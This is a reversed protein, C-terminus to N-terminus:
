GTGGLRITLELATRRITQAVRGKWSIDLGAERGIASLVAAVTGRHDFIPAALAAVGPVLTGSIRCLGRAAVQKLIASAERGDLYAPGKADPVIGKQRRMVAKVTRKPLHAAFTRGIATSMVPLANGVRLNLTVPQASEEIQIVTPGINGWVALVITENVADRLAPLVESAARVIDINRLAALGIKLALPGIGYQGTAPQQEVLGTRTLSVLYRHVKGPSMGSQSAIDKLPMTPSASTALADLIAAAIEM